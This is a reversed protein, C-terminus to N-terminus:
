NCYKVILTELALKDVIQGTKIKYDIKSCEKIASILKECSFNQAQRLCDNVIFSRIGLKQAISNEGIQAFTKVQLILTFQRAIMTLIMLPQEKLFILNNYHELALKLNKNGIAAVLNFIGAEITKTCLLNIDQACIEKDCYCILKDLENKLFNMDGMTTKLILLANEDSIIKDAASCVKKIWKILEKDSPTKIEFAEGAECIKKYLKNRKDIKSECFIIISSQPFDAINDFILETENKKGSYFFGSDKVIILRYQNMFPLAMASNIIATANEEFFNFNMDSFDDPIIKKKIQNIYHEILYNETGYLLYFNKLGNKEIQKLFNSM